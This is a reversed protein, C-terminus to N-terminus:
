KRRLKRSSLMVMDACDDWEKPYGMLRRCFKASLSMQSVELVTLGHQLGYIRAQDELNRTQNMKWRQGGADARARPSQWGSCEKGSTRLGWAQLAFILRRQPTIQTKWILKFLISGPSGKKIPLRNALFLLLNGTLSSISSRRGYTGSMLLGLEKAQRASLNALAPDLGYPGIKPGDQSNSLMVGDESVPSSTANLTVPSNPLSLM